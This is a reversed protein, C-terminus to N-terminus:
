KVYVKDVTAVFNGNNTTVCEISLRYTAIMYFDDVKTGREVVLSDVLTDYLKVKLKGSGANYVQIVGVDPVDTMTITAVVTNTSLEFLKIEFTDTGTIVMPLTSDNQKITLIFENLMGKHIVFKDITCAM